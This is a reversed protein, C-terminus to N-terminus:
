SAYSGLQADLVTSKRFLLFFATRVPSFKGNKGTIDAESLAIRGLVPSAIRGNDLRNLVSDSTFLLRYGTELGKQLLGHDYRGHPFAFSSVTAGTIDELSSKSGKLEVGADASETLPTHSVGHAGVAMGQGLVARAQPKEMMLPRVKQGAENLARALIEDRRDPALTDLANDAPLHKVRRLIDAVDRWLTYERDFIGSTVFVVSPIKEAALAPAAYRATDEWGDDFTVLIANAPLPGQGALASEVQALSVPNYHKKVFGLFSEFVPLSMTYTGDASRKRIDGDPLVRHFMVITLSDRISRRAM